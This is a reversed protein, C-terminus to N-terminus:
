RMSRTASPGRTGTPGSTGCGRASPAASCRRARGSDGGRHAGPVPYSKDDRYRINFRPKHRQILNYELLLADVETAAVIWEVSTPRRTM